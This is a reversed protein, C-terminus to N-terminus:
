GCDSRRLLVKLKTRDLGIPVECRMSIFLIPRHTEPAIAIEGDSILRIGTAHEDLIDLATVNAPWRRLLPPVNAGHYYLFATAPTDSGLIVLDQSSVLKDIEPVWSRWDEGEKAGSNVFYGSASILSAMLIIGIILRRTSSQAVASVAGALGIYVPISIWMVTRRILIPSVLYDVLVLIGFGIVPFLYVFFLPMGDRHKWAGYVLLAAWLIVEKGELLAQFGSGGYPMGLGLIIEGTQGLPRQAIWAINASHREAHAIVVTPGILFALSAGIITFCMFFRRDFAFPRWWILTVTVGIALFIVISVYHNYASAVAALLFGIGHQSLAAELPRAGRRLEAIVGQLCLLTLAFSLNLLAYGRTEQAYYLHWYSFAYLLAAIVGARRGFANKGLLYVVPVTLASLLASLLRVVAEGDGFVLMWAELMLYYLPPNTEDRLHALMFGAGAKAWYVSFLEDTWLSQRGLAVFRLATAALLIVLCAWFILRERSHAFKTLHRIAFTAPKIVM